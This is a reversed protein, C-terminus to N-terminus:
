LLTNTELVSPNTIKCLEIVWIIAWIKDNNRQPTLNTCDDDVRGLVTVQTQNQAVTASYM